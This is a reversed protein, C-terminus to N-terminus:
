SEEQNPTTGGIRPRTLYIPQLTALDDGAPENQLRKRAMEALYGARRASLAPSAVLARKDLREQIFAAMGPDIEGCFVTAREIGQCIEELTTNVFEGIRQWRGYRTQFFACIVRKRGARLVSCVPLVQSSFPYAAVEPTPIGVIPIRLSQALGKALSVGVRLGNFSGPGLAVAVSSFDVATRGLLEMCHRLMPMVQQTASTGAHWNAEALLGARDYFAVGVNATSTDLALIM